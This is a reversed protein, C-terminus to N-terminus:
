NEINIFKLKNLMSGIVMLGNGKWPRIAERSRLKFEIAKMCYFHNKIEMKMTFVKFIERNVDEMEKKMM